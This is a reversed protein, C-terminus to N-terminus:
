PWSNATALAFDVGRLAKTEEDGTHFFRYLEKAKLLQEM